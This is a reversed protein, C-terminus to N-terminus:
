VTHQGEVLTSSGKEGGIVAPRHNGEIERLHMKDGHEANGDYEMKSIENEFQAKRKAFEKEENWTFISKSAFLFDIEELTRGATEPFFCYIIPIYCLMAAGFVYFTKEGIGDFMVPVLLSGGGFGIAWGAVGFANGKARLWTPFIETPYIFPIMLWSSSFVLVYVFVMSAAATGYQQAQDPHDIAGRYLAGIVFLIISLVVAGWYLTRRRGVRDLTLAAIGTGLIGVMMCLASLWGIKVGGFGATKYITGSYIVVAAIGTGYQMLVQLWFALQIRRGLHIDGSGIGFLMKIYNTSQSEEEMHVVTVIEKIERQVDPHEADGNGRLRTIIEFAEDTRGAKVLWRPSEPILFTFYVLVFLPLAQCAFCFRWRFAGGGLETFSTAFGIWSSLAIGSFNALFTLAIMKGRHAAPALEATWAPAIVIIFAVGVGAVIRAILMHALNTTSAQLVVGAFCWFCAMWIGKIRGYRDSFQGAWFAGLLSGFYYMAVIGGQLSPKIINDDEDAFGMRRGFEPSNQVAGMVGQSMGEYSIAIASVATILQLLKPGPVTRWYNRNILM